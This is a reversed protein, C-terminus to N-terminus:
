RPHRRAPVEDGDEADIFGRGIAPVIGLTPMLSATVRAGKVREPDNGGTISFSSYTLMAIEPFTRLTRWADYDFATAEVEAVNLRPLTQWMFVLESPQRYPLPRLLVGDLLAFVASNVGIGLALTLAVLLTFAPRRVANRWAQKADSFFLDMPM